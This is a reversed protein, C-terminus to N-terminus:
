KNIGLPDLEFYDLMQKPILYLRCFMFGLSVGVQFFFVKLWERKIKQGFFAWWTEFMSGGRKKWHWWFYGM